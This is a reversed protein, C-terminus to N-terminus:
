GRHPSESLRGARRDLRCRVLLRRPLLLLAFMPLLPIWGTAGCLRPTNGAGDTDQGPGPEDPPTTAECADGIGDGDADAQGADAVAPCVDQRNLIGDGDEDPDCGDFVEDGDSDVLNTEPTEPSSDADNLICDGDRDGDCADGIGDMDLDAQNLNWTQPCNDSADPFSDGDADTGAKQGLFLRFGYFPNATGLFLGMPTSLFSRVGYSFPDGFGTRSVRTWEKGDPTAWLDFGGEVASIIDGIEDPDRNEMMPRLDPYRVFFESSELKEVSLDQFYQTFVSLDFTGVYLVGQHVVMRWIYGSFFNGCGAEMGSTPMKYGDPTTRADGCVVEWRDDAAVRILEAPAPDVEPFYDLAVFNIGSGVYLHDGFAALSVVNQNSSGRYAGRVLVKQFAYPPEGAAQTKLLQFGEVDTATGVYLFGKFVELEFAGTNAPDGFNPPSVVRFDGSAPDNAELVATDEIVRGIALVYLRDKFVTLSRYSTYTPNNSVSGPVETFHVGDITRLLRPPRGPLETSVFSGVYLAETGDPERFVTMTRYGLDIPVDALTGDSMLTKVTPSIYAPEIAGTAPDLSYIRGRLDMDLLDPECAIPVEPNTGEGVDRINRTLCAFNRNSGVLIRDKFRAMSWAYSNAPDGFGQKGIQHFEAEALQAQIGPTFGLALAVFTAAALLRCARVAHGRGRLRGSETLRPVSPFLFRARKRVTATRISFPVM